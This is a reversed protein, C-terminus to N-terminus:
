VMERQAEPLVVDGSSPDPGEAAAGVEAQSQGQQSLALHLFRRLDVSLPYRPEAADGCLLRARHFTNRIKDGPADLISATHPM